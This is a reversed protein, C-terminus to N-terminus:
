IGIAEAERTARDILDLLATHGLVHEVWEADRDHAQAAQAEILLSPLSAGPGLDEGLVLELAGALSWSVAQDDQPECAEGDASVARPGCTWRRPEGLLDRIRRLAEATDM